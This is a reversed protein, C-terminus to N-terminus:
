FHSHEAEAAARYRRNRQKEGTDYLEKFRYFSGRSYAERPLSKSVNSLQKVLGLLGVKSKTVREPTTFSLGRTWIPKYNM